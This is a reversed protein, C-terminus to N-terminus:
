EFFILACGIQDNVLLALQKLLERIGDKLVDSSMDLLCPLIELFLGRSNEVQSEENCHGMGFISEAWADRSYDIYDWESQLVM